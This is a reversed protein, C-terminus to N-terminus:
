HKQVTTNSFVRSLGKSQLSICGTRGLPFWSQINMPLVSTSASVAISQGGSAFLQSMQFYGSEPFSQLCSPFPVVSPQIADSVWHVHTQTFEPLQHHVPLGPTSRNMPDCLTPWSQAVSSFQISVLIERFLSSGNWYVFSTAQWGLEVLILGDTVTAMWWHHVRLPMWSSSFFSANQAKPVPGLYNLHMDLSYNWYIWLKKM